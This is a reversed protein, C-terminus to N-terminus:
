EDSKERTNQNTVEDAIDSEYIIWDIAQDGARPDNIKVIEGNELHHAYEYDETRNSLNKRSLRHNTWRRVWSYIVAFLPVGIVWGAIGFLGGFFLIAFIVWFSSLGTSSGLIKPGIVNGDVQQLIIVFILFILSSLPDIFVLLASGFIAGIYPGFFPVINTVGVITSFLVYYPIRMLKTCAACILGIVLSDLLKGSLFGIFTHGIFRCEEVVANARNENFLAYAVKKFQGAMTEKNYLLYISVVIGIIFNFIGKVVQVASESVRVIIVSINPLIRQNIFNTIETSADTLMEEAEDPSSLFPAIYEDFASNITRMANSIYTSFNDIIDKISSILQPIIIVFLVVIALVLVLESLILSIKRMRRRYKLNDERLPDIGKKLYRPILFEREIGNLIPALIFCIVIGILVASMVGILTKFFAAVRSSNFVLMFFLISAAFTLFIAIGWSIQKKDLKIKMSRDSNRFMPQIIGFLLVATKGGRMWLFPISSM